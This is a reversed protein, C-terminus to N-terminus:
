IDIFQDTNDVEQLISATSKIGGRKVTQIRRRTSRRRGDLNDILKDRDSGLTWQRNFLATYRIPYLAKREFRKQFTQGLEVSLTREYNNRAIAAEKRVASLNHSIYAEINDKAQKLLNEKYKHANLAAAEWKTNAQILAQWSTKVCPNSARCERVRNRLNKVDLTTASQRTSRVPVHEALRETNEEDFNIISNMAPRLASQSPTHRCIPCANSDGLRFLDIICATHFTHSCALAFCPEEVANMEEDCLACSPTDPDVCFRSM